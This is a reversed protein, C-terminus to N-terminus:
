LPDLRRLAGVTGWLPIAICLMLAAYDWALRRDQEVVHGNHETLFRARGEDKNLEYSPYINWLPWLNEPKALLQTDIARGRLLGIEVSQNAWRAASLHSAANTVFNMDPLAVLVGALIVQPLMIVPVAATAREASRALASIWLGASVGCWSALVVGATIVLWNGGGGHWASVVGLMLASQVSGIVALTLFKSAVYPGIRLGALRERRYIPREKVIAQSALGCWIWLAALVVFFFVSPLEHFALCALGALGVPQAVVQWILRRDAKLIRAFRRILTGTQGKPAHEPAPLGQRDFPRPSRSEAVVEQLHRGERSAAFESQWIASEKEGLRTFIDALRRVQFYKLARAPPGFYALRGGVALIAIKDFRAADAMGHTACVVARGQQALRQLNGVLRAAAGPDLGSTPEDLCLVPPRGLLEIGVSVRKRQGGSLSGVPVAVRDTLELLVMAEEVRQERQLRTTNLPMRLRAAYDLAQRVTLELHVADEQPVHGILHRLKAYDAYLRTGNLYIQGSRAPRRGCIADLLTSKGAGSPGLLGILEGPRVAFNVARVLVTGGIAQEMRDATLTVPAPPRVWVLFPSHFYFLYPGIQVQDNANLWAQRVAKSNILLGAQSSQDVLEFRNGTAFIAAHREEVGPGDLVVTCVRAQGLILPTRRCDISEAVEGDVMPPLEIHLVPSHSAIRRANM